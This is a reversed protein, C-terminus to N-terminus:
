ADVGCSRVRGGRCDRAERVRRAATAYAEAAPMPVLVEIFTAADVREIESTWEGSEIPLHEDGRHMRPVGDVVTSAFVVLRLTFDGGVRIEEIERLQDAGIYGALTLQAGNPTPSVLHAGSLRCVMREHQSSLRSVFLDAHVQYPLVSVTANPVVSSVAFQLEIRAEAAARILRLVNSEFGIRENNGVEVTTMKDTDKRSAQHAVSSARAAPAPAVLNVNRRVARATVACDTRRDRYM